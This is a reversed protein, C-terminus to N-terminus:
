GKTTRLYADELLLLDRSREKIRRAPVGAYVGWPETSRAVMSMAGVSCGEALSVGPLVMSGAGVICHRGLTVAARTERRFESPVTPNTLANGSYDDSESFVQCGPSLGSFDDLTVGATGGAVNCFVSVHVNCGIVVKGSIVTFDDIRVNDGIEMREAGYIAARDSILVNEGLSKFGMAAAQIASLFPV